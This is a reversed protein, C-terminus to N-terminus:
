AFMVSLNYQDRQVLLISTYCMSTPTGCRTWVIGPPHCARPPRITRKQAQTRACKELACLQAVCIYVSSQEPVSQRRDFRCYYRKLHKINAMM